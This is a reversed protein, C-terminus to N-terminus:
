IKIDFNYFYFTKYFKDRNQPINHESMNKFTTKAHKTKLKIGNEQHEFKEYFVCFLKYSLM